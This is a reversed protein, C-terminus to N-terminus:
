IKDRNENDERICSTTANPRRLVKEALIKATLQKFVSQKFTLFRDRCEAAEDMKWYLSGQVARLLPRPRTRMGRIPCNISTQLRWRKGTHGGWGAHKYGGDAAIEPRFHQFQRSVVGAVAAAAKDNSGIHFPSDRLICLQARQDRLQPQLRLEINGRSRRRVELTVRVTAGAFKRRKLLLHLLQQLRM